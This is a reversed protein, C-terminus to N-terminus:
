DDDWDDYHTPQEEDPQRTPTTAPPIGTGLLRVQHPSGPDDDWINLQGWRPGIQTPTFRITFTCKANPALSSGCDNSQRFDSGVVRKGSINLTTTKSTNTLTLTSTATTGLWQSVTFNVVTPSLKVGSGIGTAQILEPGAPGSNVTITASRPGLATPKFTVNFKCSSAPPVSANACGSVTYDGPSVTISTINVNSDGANFFTVPNTTSSNLLKGGFITSDNVFPCAHKNLVLPLLPTQNFDFSDLMDNARADRGNLTPLSFMEEITKLVSSFEYQTKSIHSPKAYPSIIIMPVRPGLGYLDVQPPAVHDYFGGFDDWTLFIATSGWDPGQMIANIQDVTWNEGYCTSNPSHENGLGMVLWSVAPLNGTLADGMFQSDPVVNLAWDPGYRIHSINNFVSFNYGANGYSPAYYKWSLSADDLLDALSQLEFCPVVEKINGPGTMVQVSIPITSDCGWSYGVVPPKPVNIVGAASAAITYLHNPLSPGHESSFTHDSLTFNQAYAFYNPIDAQTFQTYALYDGNVNGAYNIDFLDMKGGDIVELASYWDHGIDRPQDPTHGLPIIQGTSIRGQTAGDAGPFTGFYNDFTHNEKVIYVVHKIPTTTQAAASWSALLSLASLLCALLYIACRISRTNSATSLSAAPVHQRCLFTTRLRRFVPSEFFVVTMLPHPLRRM